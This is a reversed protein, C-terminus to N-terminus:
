KVFDRQIWISFMVNDFKNSHIIKFTQVKKLKTKSYTQQQQQQHQQIVGVNSSFQM